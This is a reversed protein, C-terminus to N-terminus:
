NPSFKTYLKLLQELTVEVKPDFDDSQIYDLLAKRMQRAAPRNKLNSSLDMSTMVLRGNGIRCEFLMGLKRAKIANDIPQVIPVLEAPLEDMQMPTARNLLEWWQLDSHAETPFKRFIPHDKRIYAGLTHPSYNSVWLTNWFVPVLYQKIQRGYNVQSASIMLVTGGAAFTQLARQDPVETIYIDQSHTSREQPIDSVDGNLSPYIWFNWENHNILSGDPHCLTAELTRQCPAPQDANTWRWSLKADSIDEDGFNSIELKFDIEENDNWVFRPTRMLIVVPANWQRWEEATTYGKNNWLPSLVGKWTGGQGPYDNLGELEFGAYGHTRRMKEIEHKYCLVQLRGSAWLFTDSLQGLGSAELKDKYISYSGPNMVFGDYKPAESIDPYSCWQGMEHCIYPVPVTDIIEHYDKTTEPRRWQWDIYRPSAKHQFQNFDMWTWRGGVSFGTYLHRADKTSYDRVFHEAWSVWDGTMPENGGTFFVFSPHNGYSELIRSAEEDLYQAMPNGPFIAMAHDDQWDPCEVMLYLGLSDAATFAAEPPCYSHFRISNMGYDKCIQMVRMWEEVDTPPFGTRPFICNEVTGRIITRRNNIAIWTSDAKVERMGFTVERLDAIRKGKKDTLQLQLHYLSPSFENWTRDLGGVLLEQTLTDGSAIKIAQTVGSLNNRLQLTATKKSTNAIRCKVVAQQGAVEPFVQISGPVFHCPDTAELRIEGTIGNWNGQTNDSISHSTPGVPVNRLTNDVEIALLHPGPSLLSSLDFVHPTSLSRCSGAEQGDVFVRTEVHPRELTLRICKGDWNTPIVVERSYTATGCFYHTPTFFYLMKLDEGKGRYPAYEPSKFYASDYNTYKWPTEVSTLDGIHQQPLSGPLSVLTDAQPIQLRWTGSLDWVDQAAASLTM